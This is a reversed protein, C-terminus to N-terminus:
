ASYHKQYRYIEQLEMQYLDISKNSLLNCTGFFLAELKKADKENDFKAVLLMSGFRNKLIIEYEPKKRDNITYQM